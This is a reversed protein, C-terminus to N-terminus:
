HYYGEQPLFMSIVPTNSVMLDYQGDPEESFSEPRATIEEEKTQTHVM